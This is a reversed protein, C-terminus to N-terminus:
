EALFGIKRPPEDNLKKSVIVEFSVLEVPATLFYLNGEEDQARLNYYHGKMTVQHVDYRNGSVHCLLNATQDPKLETITFQYQAAAFQFIENARRVKHTLEDAISALSQMTQPNYSGTSMQTM